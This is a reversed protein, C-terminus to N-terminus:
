VVEARSDRFCRDIVSAVASRWDYCDGDSLKTYREQDRRTDVLLDFIYGTGAIWEGFYRLSGLFQSGDYISQRTAGEILDFDLADFSVHHIDLQGNAPCTAVLLQAPFDNVVYAEFYGGRLMESLDSGGHALKQDLEDACRAVTKNGDGKCTPSLKVSPM